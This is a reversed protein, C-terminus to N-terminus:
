SVFSVRMRDAPKRIKASAYSFFLNQPGGIARPRLWDLASIPRPLPDIRDPLDLNWLALSYKIDRVVVDSQNIIQLAPSQPYVFRLRLSVDPLLTKAGPEVKKRGVIVVFENALLQPNIPFGPEIGVSMFAARLRM